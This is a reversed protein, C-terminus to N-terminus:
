CYWSSTNGERTSSGGDNPSSPSGEGSDYWNEVEPYLVTDPNEM